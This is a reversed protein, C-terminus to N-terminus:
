GLKQTFNSLFIHKLTALFKQRKLAVVGSQCAVEKLLKTLLDNAFHWFAELLLKM